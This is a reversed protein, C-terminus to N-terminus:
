ISSLLKQKITDYEEQSVAGTDLLTKWKLLEDALSTASAAPTTIVSAQQQEQYEKAKVMAAKFANVYKESTSKAAQYESSGVFTPRIIFPHYLTENKLAVVLKLSLCVNYTKASDRTTAGVIAGASGFLLGGVVARGLGSSEQETRTEFSESLSCDIIDSYRYITKHPIFLFQQEADVFLACDELKVDAAKKFKQVLAKEQEIREAEAVKNRRYEAFLTDLDKAGCQLIKVVDSYKLEAAEEESLSLGTKEWCHQCIQGTSIQTFHESKTIEKDCIICYAM